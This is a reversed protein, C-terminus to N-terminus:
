EMFNIQSDVPALDSLPLKQKMEAVTIEAM